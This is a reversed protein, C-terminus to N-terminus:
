DSKNRKNAKTGQYFLWYLISYFHYPTLHFLTPTFMSSLADKDQEKSCLSLGWYKVILYPKYM